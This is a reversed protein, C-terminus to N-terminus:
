CEQAGKSISGRDEEGNKMAVLGNKVSDLAIANAKMRFSLYVSESM